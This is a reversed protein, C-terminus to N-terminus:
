ISQEKKRSKPAKKIDLTEWPYDQFVSRLIRESPPWIIHSWYHDQDYGSTYSESYIPMKGKPGKIYIHSIKQGVMVEAGCEIMQKAVLVHPIATKYEIIPKTLEKYLLVDDKTLQGIQVLTRQASLYEFIELSSKGNFIMDIVTRQMRLAFASQDTRVLEIGKCFFRPEIKKGEDWTQVGAYRKKTGKEKDGVFIMQKVVKEFKMEIKRDEPAINFNGLLTLYFDNLEQTLKQGLAIQEDLNDKNIKVFLSDTDIYIVQYGKEELFNKSIKILWRGARTVSGAIDIHYYRSVPNGMVGYFSLLIVKPVKELIDYLVWEPTGKDFANRKRLYYNREDELGTLIQPIVGKIDKAFWASDDEPVYIKEKGARLTEPSINWSQMIRNYLSKFDLILIGRHLGAPPEQVYGGVFSTRTAKSKPRYPFRLGLKLERVKRLIMNDIIITPFRVEELLCNTKSSLSDLIQTIQFKEDIKKMLKCDMVNYEMLKQKDELYTEIVKKGLKIKTEGLEALAVDNLAYSRMRKMKIFRAMIDFKQFYRWNLEIGLWNCREELYPFDFGDGYWAVLVDYDKVANYFDRILRRECDRDKHNENIFFKVKDNQDVCAISLIPYRGVHIESITDDTEIDIYLIKLKDTGVPTLTDILYRRWYPIDSEYTKVGAVELADRIKYVMGARKLYLKAYKGTYEVDSIERIRTYREVAPHGRDGAGIIIYHRFVPYDIVQEFKNDGDRYLLTIANFKTWASVIRL